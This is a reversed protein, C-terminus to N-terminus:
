SRRQPPPNAPEWKWHLDDLFHARVKEQSADNHMVDFLKKDYIIAYLETWCLGGRERLRELTQGHNSKARNRIAATLTFTVYGLAKMKGMIPMRFVEVTVNHDGM